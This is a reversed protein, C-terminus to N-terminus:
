HMKINNKILRQHTQEICIDQYFRVGRADFDASVEDNRIGLQLWFCKLETELADRAIEPIDQPRRFVVVIDVGGPIASVTEYSTKGAIERCMPNVPIVEYGQHQLYLAVEYSPKACDRSMGVVAIRKTDQLLSAIETDDYVM